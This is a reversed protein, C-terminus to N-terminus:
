RDGDEGAAFLAAREGAERMADLDCLDNTSVLVKHGPSFRGVDTNDVVTGEQDDEAYPMGLPDRLINVM